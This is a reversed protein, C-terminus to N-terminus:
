NAASRPSWADLRRHAALERHKFSSIQIGEVALEGLKQLSEVVFIVLFILSCRAV